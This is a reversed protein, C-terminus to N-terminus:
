APSGATGAKVAFASEEKVHDHLRRYLEFKERYFERHKPNPRITERIHSMNLAAEEANRYVDAAAASLIACGLAGAEKVRLVSVPIQLIDAKIELWARSKSGGGAAILHDVAVRQERLVSINLEQDLCLGELLARYMDFKTVGYDVGTIALRAGSDMYPTGSGMLYPQVMIRTPNPPVHSDFLAYPLEKGNAFASLFWQVLLGSTQNYALCCFEGKELFPESPIGKQAIFNAPLMAGTIPTICESTGMSNVAYGKRLGAGIANVPQDHGGVVVKVNEGVGLEGALDKRLTGLLTGMPVPDSYHGRDLGFQAILEGSWVCQRVDFFMSRSASAYDVAAQGCLKFNIFDQLLLIKKTKEYIGPREKQLYLIKSLSYSPSLPLGCIRAIEESSTKREAEFYEKEGWRDTFLMPDCIIADRGDLAIFAEGFSDACVANLKGGTKATVEGLVEKTKDWIEQGRLLRTGDQAVQITYARYAGGLENGREDFAAAKVGTTGVDLGCFVM